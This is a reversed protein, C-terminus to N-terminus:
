RRRITGAGRTAAGDAGVARGSPVASLGVVVFANRILRPTTFTFPRGFADTGSFVYEAAGGAPSNFANFRSRVITSGGPIPNVGFGVAPDAFDAGTRAITQTLTGAADYFNVTWANVTAATGGTESITLTSRWCYAFDPAESCVPNAADVSTPNPNWVLTLNVPNPVLAANFTSTQAALISV